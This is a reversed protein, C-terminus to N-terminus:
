GFDGVELMLFRNGTGCDRGVCGTRIFCRRNGTNETCLELVALEWWMQVQMAVVHFAAVSHTASRSRLRSTGSESRLGLSQSDYFKEERKETGKLLHQCFVKFYAVVVEKELEKWEIIM